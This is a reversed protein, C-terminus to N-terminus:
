HLQYDFTYSHKGASDILINLTGSLGSLEGTGSDAVVVIQMVGSKPDSRNITANHMLYFSGSRGDLKGDVHEIAVYAMAGTSETLSTLMEGKSSGELDGSWVKDITMRGIGADKGLSSVDAPAVKVGFTGKAHKMGPEGTKVAQVLSQTGAMLTAVLVAM